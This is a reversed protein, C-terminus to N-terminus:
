ESMTGPRPPLGTFGELVVMNTYESAAHRFPIAKQYEAGLVLTVTGDDALCGRLTEITDELRPDSGDAEPASNGIIDRSDRLM